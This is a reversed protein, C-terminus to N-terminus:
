SSIVVVTFVHLAAASLLQLTAAEQLRPVLGAIPSSITKSPVLTLAQEISSSVAEKAVKVTAAAYVPALATIVLAAFLSTVV